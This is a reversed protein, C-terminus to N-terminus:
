MGRKKELIALFQEASFTAAHQSASARGLPAVKSALIEFASDPGATPVYVTNPDRSTKHSKLFLVYRGHNFRPFGPHIQDEIFSGRDIVGGVRRVVISATNPGVSGDSKLVRLVRIVYETQVFTAPESSGLPYVTENAPRVEVVRGDIVLASHQWLADLTAPPEIGDVHVFNQRVPKQPAAAGLGTFYSALCPVSILILLKRFFRFSM